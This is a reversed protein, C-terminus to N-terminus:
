EIACTRFGAFVDQRGPEFFNRYTNTVLRSRTAWAGGKLVKPYGFWPASYERYPADVIFGPYPYFASATWEWVNGLMQRCGWGSDGQPYSAVDVCGVSQYDLNARRQHGPGLPEDGWPYLRRTPDGPATSAACEWEAETPLRRGAWRCYAEAEYWGVHVVPADDSLPSWRDFDRQLWTEDELKWYVPHHSEAKTRWVWGPTSWCERRAYGADNVFERYEGNTVPARSIRYSSLELPHAWKENDFLFRQAEGERAPEAGLRYTQKEIAVDGPHSGSGDRSSAETLLEIAPRPYAMTQRTWALAEAHMSEHHIALQYHYSERSTPERGAIRGLVRQMIADLYGLTERRDPLDLTWRDAHDVEFSNFVDAGEKFATPVSDLEALLFSDYFFSVHGLEWRMPNVTALYPLELQEDSLDAVLALTVRRVDELQHAITKASLRIREAM